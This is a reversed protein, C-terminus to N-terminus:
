IIPNDLISLIHQNAEPFEYNKLESLAVWQMGTQLERCSATGSFEHVLYVHLVLKKLENREGVHSIIQTMYDAEVVQLGVEELIERKLASLPSENAELKGGPFEWLSPQTATKPRKTILFRAENDRILGISVEIM